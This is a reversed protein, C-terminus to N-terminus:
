DDKFYGSKKLSNYLSPQKILVEFKKIINSLKRISEEEKKFIIRAKRFSKNNMGEKKYYKQKTSYLSNYKFTLLTQLRRLIQKM